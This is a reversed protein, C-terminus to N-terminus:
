PGRREAEGPDKHVGLAGRFSKAQCAFFLRKLSTAEAHKLMVRAMSM